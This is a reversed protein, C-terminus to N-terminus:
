PGCAEIDGLWNLAPQSQPVRLRMASDSNSYYRNLVPESQKGTIQSLDNVVFKM